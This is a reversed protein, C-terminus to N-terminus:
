KECETRLREIVQSKNIKSLFRLGSCAAANHRLIYDRNSPFLDARWCTILITTMFRAIVLDLLVDIEEDVLANHSHYGDVLETMTRLGDHRDHLHYSCAVALENVTPAFVMDGFDFLGAISEIARPSVLVNTLNADNHIVQHRLSGLTPKTHTKFHDLCTEVTSRIDSASISSVLPELTDVRSSDWALAYHIHPHQFSELAKDLQGLFAGIDRLPHKEVPTKILPIGDLYSFLRVVNPEPDGCDMSAHLQGGLTPILRPVPLHPVRKAIEELVATNCATRGNPEAQNTIKLIYKEGDTSVLFNTDRESHLCKAEEPKLGYESLVFAKVTHEEVAPPPSTFLACNPISDALDADLPRNEPSAGSRSSQPLTEKM